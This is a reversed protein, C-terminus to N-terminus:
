KKFVMKYPRIDNKLIGSKVAPDQEALEIAKNRNEVELVYMAGNRKDSFPGAIVVLKQEILKRMFEVHPIMMEPTINDKISDQIIVYYM